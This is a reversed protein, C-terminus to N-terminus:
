GCLSGWTSLPPSYQRPSEMSQHTPVSRRWGTLSPQFARSRPDAFTSLSAILTTSLAARPFRFAPPATPSSTRYRSIPSPLVEGTFVVLGREASLTVTNPLDVPVLGSEEEGDAACGALALWFLGVVAILRGRM